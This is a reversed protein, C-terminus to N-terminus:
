STRANCRSSRKVVRFPQRRHGLPFSLGHPLGGYRERDEGVPRCAGARGVQASTVTFAISYSSPVPVDDCTFASEDPSAGSISWSTGDFSLTGPTLTCRSGSCGSIQWTSTLNDYDACSEEPDTIGTCATLKRTVTYSGEISAEEPM